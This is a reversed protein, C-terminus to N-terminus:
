DASPEQRKSPGGELAAGQAGPAPPLDAAVAEAELRPAAEGEALPAPGTAVEGDGLAEKEPTTAAAGGAAARAAQAANRAEQRAIADEFPGLIAAQRQPSLECIEMNTFLRGLLSLVQTRAAGLTTDLEDMAMLSARENVGAGLADAAEVWQQAVSHLDTDLFTILKLMRVLRQPLAALLAGAEAAEVLYPKTTQRLGDPALMEQAEKLDALRSESPVEQAKELAMAAAIANLLVRFLEDHRRDHRQITTTLESARRQMDSQAICGLLTANAPVLLRAVSRTAEDRTLAEGHTALVAGTTSALIRSPLVNINKM